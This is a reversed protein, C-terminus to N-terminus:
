RALRLLVPNHDSALKVAEDERIEASVLGAALAPTLLLFDIRTRYPERNYTVDESGACPDVLGADLLAQITPSEPVDNFDGAILARYGPDRALEDALIRAAETAEAQRAVDAADGGHQSKLHVVYVDANLAGGIEVRLLDRRFRQPQGEADEFRLHRYSTVAGVPLRSLLAVDIGRRDNGEVLVVEYGLAGLYDRNFEELLWRNEVEQVCVLDAGLLKLIGALRGLRADSAYAPKTRQDDTWPNDFRDFLNEVNWTVVRLPAPGDAHQVAAPDQALFLLCALLM